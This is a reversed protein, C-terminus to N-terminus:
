CYIFKDQARRHKLDCLPITQLLAAKKLIFGSSDSMEVDGINISHFTNSNLNWWLNTFSYHCWRKFSLLCSDWLFFNFLSLLSLVLLYASLNLGDMKKWKDLELDCSPQLKDWSGSPLLWHVGQSPWWGTVPWVCLSLCDDMGVTLKSNIVAHRQVTPPLWVVQLSGLCYSLM